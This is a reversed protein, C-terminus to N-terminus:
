LDITKFLFILINRNSGFLGFYFKPETRNPQMALETRNPEIKLVSNYSQNALNPETEVSGFWHVGRPSFSSSQTQM